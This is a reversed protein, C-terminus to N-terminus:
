TCVDDCYLLLSAKLLGPLPKAPDGFILIKNWKLLISATRIPKPLPPGCLCAM